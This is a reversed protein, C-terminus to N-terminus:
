RQDCTSRFTLTERLIRVHLNSCKKMTSKESCSNTLFPRPVRPACMVRWSNPRVIERIGGFCLMLPYTNFFNRDSESQLKKQCIVTTFCWRFGQILSMSYQLTQTINYQLSWKCVNNDADGPNIIFFRRDEPPTFCFNNFIDFDWIKHLKSQFHPWFVVFNGASKPPWSSYFLPNNILPLKNNSIQLM